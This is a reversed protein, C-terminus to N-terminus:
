PGIARIRSPRALRDARARVTKVTHHGGCLCRGNRPDLLSGGDRLEVVHDAFLRHRPEAKSCRVGADIAECRRGARAIVTERWAQYAPSRYVPDVQKGEPTVVRTDARARILPPLTKLGM